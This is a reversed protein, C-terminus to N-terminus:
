VREVVLSIAEGGGICLSALGYKKNRHELTHLLTTLVRAGSCGIPHGLSIAGGNVNMKEEPIELEKAAALAVVAFAENVEFLDIDNISLNAKELSKKIAEVPATTFWQPEQSHMASSLIRAMPKVDLEKAKEESMVLLAAAGDNITSANAATITGNKEFAPRLNPMKAFNGKRPGEDETVILPDGKRQPVEVPVIEKAFLKEEQARQSREFSQKAYRDQEERSFNYKKACMEAANGMHFDNYVDWLGDKIMSDTLTGPGMKIGNRMNMLHPAQSMNEMGGAVVVSAEKALIANRALSVAMLGSGCMKNITLAGVSHPLGGYIAAQRAPAQGLGSSLVNGMIVQDVRPVSARRLAERIVMSGLKTASVTSLGGLFSGIPTRAASAIIVNSM